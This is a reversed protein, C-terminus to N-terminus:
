TVSAAPLDTSFLVSVNQGFLADPRIWGSAGAVDFYGSLQGVFGKVSPETHPTSFPQADLM